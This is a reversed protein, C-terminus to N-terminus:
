GNPNVFILATSTPSNKSFTVHDINIKEAELAKLYELGDSDTGIKVM